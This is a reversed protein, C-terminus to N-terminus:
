KKPPKRVSIVHKRNVQLSPPVVEPNEELFEKMNGGHIRKELLHTAENELIFKYMEDWNSVGFHTQVRRSVTGAKTKISETEEGFLEDLEISIKQQQAKIVKIEDEKALIAERMKIYISTLKAAEDNGNM